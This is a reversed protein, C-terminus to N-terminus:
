LKNVLQSIYDVQVAHSFANPRLAKVQDVAEQMQAGREMLIQAAVLGTRGSGGKCHIAITEDNDLRKHIDARVQQWAAAFEETPAGEDDMPLHFWALGAALCQTELREVQNKSMEPRTMLTILAIAGAAKLDQLSSVLDSESTGPCPTLLLSGQQNPCALPYFPHRPM